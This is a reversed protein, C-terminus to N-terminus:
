PQAQSQEEATTLYIRRRNAEADRSIDVGAIGLIQTSLHAANTAKVPTVLGELLYKRGLDSLYLKTLSRSTLAFPMAAIPHRLMAGATSFAILPAATGSPNEALKVTGKTREVIQALQYFDKLETPSWLQKQVEAPYANLHEMMRTPFLTNENPKVGEVFAMRLDKKMSPFQRLIKATLDAHGLITPAVKSPAEKMLERFLPNGLPSHKIWTSQDALHYLNKMEQPSYIEELTQSGFQDLRRRLGPLGDAEKGGVNLLQNTFAKKVPASASDGVLTKLETYGAASGPRILTTAIHSPDSMIARAVGPHEKANFLSKRTGTSARAAAFLDATDSGSMKSFQELEADVADKLELYIKGYADSSGKQADGRALGSHHEAALSSLESRLTVLDSVKWGPKENGVIDAILQKRTAPPLGAPIQKEAEAVLADYKANGSGAVNNLKALLNEDVFKPINIYRDKITTAVQKMMPTKGVVTEPPVSEKAATWALDEVDKLGQYRQTIATQTQEGLEKYSVPSGVDQLIKERAADRLEGQRMGIRDLEKEVTDQIKQGVDGIRQRDKTGTTDRIRTWEKTLAELKTQEKRQILGSTYPINEILKHGLAMPRSQLLEHPDLIIGKAQAAEDLTRPLGEYQKAFPGLVKSALPGALKGVIGSAGEIGGGLLLSKGAEAVGQEISQVPPREGAIRELLSSATDGLAYGGAAGLIAGGPLPSAAGLVGGGIMGGGELVPRVYTHVPGSENLEKKGPSAIVTPPTLGHEAFAQKRKLVRDPGNSLQYSIDQDLEHEVQDPTLTTASSSPTGDSEKMLRKVRADVSEDAM